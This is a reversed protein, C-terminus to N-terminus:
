GSLQMQAGTCSDLSTHKGSLLRGWLKTCSVFVICQPLNTPFCVLRSLQQFDVTATGRSEGRGTQQRPLLIIVGDTVCTEVHVRTALRQPGCMMLAVSLPSSQPVWTCSANGLSNKFHGSPFPVGHVLTICQWGCQKVVRHLRGTGSAQHGATRM